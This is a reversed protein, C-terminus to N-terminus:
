LGARVFGVCGHLWPWSNQHFLFSFLAGDWTNEEGHVNEGCAIGEVEVKKRRALEWIQIEQGLNKVDKESVNYM